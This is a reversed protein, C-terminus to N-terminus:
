KQALGLTLFWLCEVLGKGQLAAVNEDRAVYNFTPHRPADERKQAKKPHPVDDPDLVPM